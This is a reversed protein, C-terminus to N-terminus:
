GRWITIQIFQLQRHSECAANTTHVAVPTHLHKPTDIENSFLKDAYRIANVRRSPQANTGDFVVNKKGGM